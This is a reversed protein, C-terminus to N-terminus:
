HWVEVKFNYSASPSKSTRPDECNICYARCEGDSGPLGVLWSGFEALWKDGM